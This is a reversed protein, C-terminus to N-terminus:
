EADYIQVRTWYAKFRALFALHLPDVQYANHGAVDSFLVTIAFSFSLDVVPRPPIAAPAGVYLQQVSQIARLSELGENRFEEKQTEALDSQLYFVVTHVFMIRGFCANDLCLALLFQNVGCFVSPVNAM